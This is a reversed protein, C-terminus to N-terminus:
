NFLYTNSTFQQLGCSQPINLGYNKHAHEALAYNEQNTGGLSSHPSTSLRVLLGM